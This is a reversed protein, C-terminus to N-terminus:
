KQPLLRSLSRELKAQTSSTSAEPGFYYARLDYDVGIVEYGEAHSRKCTESGIVGGSGTVLIVGM